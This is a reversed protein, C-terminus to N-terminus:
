EGSVFPPQYVPAAAPIRDLYVSFCTGKGETSVVEIRGQHLEVIERAISLGLGTGGHFDSARFFPKFIHPLMEAPIGIGTDEVHLAAAKESIAEVRVEVRGGVPTYNIANTILNTIVQTLRSADGSVVVPEGPGIVRVDISKEDAESRQIQVVYEALDQLVVPRHVLSIIGHEFRSVDLLDEVLERMRDTVYEVVELHSDAKDPQRRMLYLRTKINALPTRLEHSATAIFRAKQAELRKEQSIDRIVTVAGASAGDV